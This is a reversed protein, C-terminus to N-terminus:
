NSFGNKGVEMGKNFSAIKEDGLQKNMEARALELADNKAQEVADKMAKQAKKKEGPKSIFLGGLAGLLGVGIAGGPLTALYGQGFEIGLNAGAALLDGWFMADSYAQDFLELNDTTRQVYQDRIMQGESVAIKPGVGTVSRVDEPVTMQVLDYVNCGGMALTVIVIAAAAVLATVGVANERLWTM